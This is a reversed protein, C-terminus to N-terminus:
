YVRKTPITGVQGNIILRLMYFPKSSKFTDCLLMTVVM